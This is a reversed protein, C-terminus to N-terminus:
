SRNWVQVELKKTSGESAMHWPSGRTEALILYTVM